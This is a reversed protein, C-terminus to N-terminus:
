DDSGGEIQRGSVGPVAPRPKSHYLPADHVPGLWDEDPARKAGRHRVALVASVILGATAAVFIMASAYVIHISSERGGFIM